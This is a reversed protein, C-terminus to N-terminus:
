DLEGKYLQRAVNVAPTVYLPIRTDYIGGLRVAADAARSPNHMFGALGTLTDLPVDIAPIDKVNEYPDAGYRGGTVAQGTGYAVDGALGTPGTLASRIVSSAVPM